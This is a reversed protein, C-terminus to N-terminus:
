KKTYPLLLSRVTDALKPDINKLVIDRIDPDIQSSQLEQDNLNKSITTLTGAATKSSIDPVRTFAETRGTKKSTRLDYRAGRDAVYQKLIDSPIQTPAHPLVFPKSNGGPFVSLQINPVKSVATDRILNKNVIDLQRLGARAKKSAAEIHETPADVDKITSILPTMVDELGPHNGYEGVDIRDAITTNHGKVDLPIINGDKDLDIADKENNSISKGSLDILQKSIDQILSNSGGKVASGLARIGHVLKGVREIRGGKVQIDEKPPNLIPDVLKSVPENLDMKENLIDLFGLDFEEVFSKKSYDVWHIDQKGTDPNVSRLAIKGKPNRAQYRQLYTKTESNPLHKWAKAAKFHGMEEPCVDFMECNDLGVPPKRRQMPAMVPDYGGVGGQNNSVVPTGITGAGGGGGGVGMDECLEIYSTNPNINLAIYGEVLGAFQADSIDYAKVEESFLQLTSLYNTLQAKTMGAPLQEFIKKLKIILYEFSDISSEAKLVNGSSDIAGASYAALETYPASIGQAFKYFYFSPIYQPTNM